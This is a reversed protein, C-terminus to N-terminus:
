HDQREYIFISVLLSVLYGVLGLGLLLWPGWPRLWGPFNAMLWSDPMASLAAWCGMMGTAVTIIFVFLGTIYGYKFFSDTFYGYHVAVPALVACSLLAAGLSSVAMAVWGSAAGMGLLVRLGLVVALLSGYLVVLILSTLYHSIMVVRRRLLLIDYLVGDLGRRYRGFVVFILVIALVIFSTSAFSMPDEAGHSFVFWYLMAGPALYFIGRMRYLDFKLMAGLERRM